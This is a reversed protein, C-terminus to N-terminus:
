PQYEPGSPNLKSFHEFSYALPAGPVLTTIQKPDFLEVHGDAFCQNGMGFHRTSLTCVINGYAIGDSGAAPNEPELVLLKHDSHLIQAFKLTTYANILGRNTPIKVGTALSMNGNFNFSFNREHAANLVPPVAEVLVQPRNTDSPCLLLQQRRIPDMTLYHWLLGDSVYDYESIATMGWMMNPFIVTGRYGQPPLPMVDRNNMAYMVLAHYIQQQNSACVVVQAQMRAKQLTPLLIGILLTIIGIVVLLEILTFAHVPRIYRNM